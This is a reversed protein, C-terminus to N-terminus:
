FIQIRNNGSDCVYLVGGGNYDVALGRPLDFEGPAVGEQGFSTLFQGETSFVSVRHNHDCIYVMNNGGVVVSLPCNLCGKVRGFSGFQRLFEGEATFVLIRHMRGEAIYINGSCDCSMDNVLSIFDADDGQGFFRYFTLDSNLIQINNNKEDAIYLKDNSANYLVCWPYNFQLPGNGRTGVSALFQGDATFQQLCHNRQDIVLVNGMGDVTLNFPNKIHGRESGNMIFSQLKEGSPAYVSITATEWEVVVVQGRHNVAIGWPQRVKDICKILSGLNTVRDDVVMIAFPSGGIHQGEVKINLRHRGKITPRYSFRYLNNNKSHLSGKVTTGSIESVLECQLSQISETCLEGNFNYAQICVLSKGGVVSEDEWKATFRSPDLSRLSQIDGLVGCAEKINPSISFMMDAEAKPKLFSPEFPVISKDARNRIETVMKLIEGRDVTKLSESMFNFCSDLEAQVTEMQNKQSTLSKLKIRTIQNLENIIKNKASELIEHLQRVTDHVYGEINDRQNSVEESCTEVLTLATRITRLQKGVPELSSSIEKKYSEFAESLSLFDHNEHYGGRIACKWCILAKCTQCFLQTEEKPHDSCLHVEVSPSLPEPNAKAQAQPEQSTLLGRAKKLDDRIELFDNIRFASQLGRVGNPPISTVQRCTPCSLILEKQQDKVVLKILCKLCFTHFCQLLKPDTYTDLCISCNLQEDLKKFTNETM